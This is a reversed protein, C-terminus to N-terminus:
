EARTWFGCNHRGFFEMSSESTPTPPVLLQVRGESFQRWDAAGPLNPNALRAFQTWYLRMTSALQRSPAPLSSPGQTPGGLNLNFLYKLEASHMAGLPSAADDDFEYSYTTTWQALLQSSVAAGCAFLGDGYLASAAEFASPYASLPYTNLISAVSKGSLAAAQSVFAPYEAASFTPPIFFRGEHSNGGQIVPMRNFHGSILASLQTERLVQGDVTSQNWLDIPPNASSASANALIDAVQVTRLCAATQDSCGVANAFALGLAESAGLPPTNLQYAGSQVIARQFLGASLPSVLQTLTDLGGASEGILTVNHPDGGFRSINAQIWQLALQQDMIGYNAAAHGEGDLAPHALFGLPGLRYNLTVVILKGTEVLPTPDYFESAGRANGGGHIWVMVPRRALSDLEIEATRPAYINLFLCAESARPDEAPPLQPCHMGFQSADLVGQWRAKPRPPRWRLDGTPPEAYPIGLFTVTTSQVSGRVPGSGTVVVMGTPASPDAAFASPAVSLTV